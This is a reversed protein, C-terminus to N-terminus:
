KLQITKTISMGLMDIDTPMEFTTKIVEQNAHALSIEINQALVNPASVSITVQDQQEELLVISSKDVSISLGSPLKIMGADYFTIGAINLRKHYVAQISSTNKLVKVEPAKAYDDTQKVTKGPLLTYQYQGKNAKSGHDLRLLFVNKKLLDDSQSNNIRQWSGTKTQQSVQGHFPKMFVYGVNDHHLWNANKVSQQAQAMKEGDITVAGNGLTQNVTTHILKRKSAETNANIDAGLAVIADDFHFWAKKATIGMVNLDMATVGYLGNSVGGVFSSQHLYKGWAGGLGEYEPATVGPLYRWDWVPFIDQYEDGRQRLFTNGFGLWYGLLNEGNGSETTVVRSSAMKVSFHYNDRMTVAYDSRWFHKHGNLGSGGGNIHHRFAEVAGAREPALASVYDLQELLTTKNSFKRDSRSISRGATSYDITAARTMWRDSDLFYRTLLDIQEASFAWPLDKVQYAWYIATNFFVKGYSGNHLQADHQHFSLDSQIGEGQTIKVSAKIGDLGSAVREEDGSLLGGYIVIKAFDTLNAGESSPNNPLDNAVTLKMQTSIASEAMLAIAGLHMQKGIQNWWWNKSEPKVKYWYALGREIAQSYANLIDHNAKAQSTKSEAAIVYYAAALAKLRLLHEEPLWATIATNDYTVDLWKGEVNQGKLYFAAKELLTSQSSLQQEQETKVLDPVIGLKLQTIPSLQKIDVQETTIPNLEDASNRVEMCGAIVMLGCVSSMVTFNKTICGKVNHRKIM